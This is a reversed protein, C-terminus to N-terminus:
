RMEQCRRTERKEAARKAKQQEAMARTSLKETVGDEEEEDKEVVVAAETNEDVGGTGKKRGGKGGKGGKEHAPTAGNQLNGLPKRDTRKSRRPGGPADMQATEHQQQVQGIRRRGRTKANPVAVAPSDQKEAALEAEAKNDGEGAGDDGCPSEEVTRSASTAEAATEEEETDQQDHEGIPSGFSSSSLDDATSDDVVSVMSIEQGQGELLGGDDDCGESGAGVSSSSARSSSSSSSSRGTSKSEAATTAAAAAQTSRESELRSIEEQAAKLQRELGGQRDSALAASAELQEVKSELELRASREDSRDGRLRAVDAEAADARVKEREARSELTRQEDLAAALAEEV